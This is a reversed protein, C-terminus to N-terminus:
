KRNPSLFFENRIFKILTGYYYNVYMENKENFMRIDDSFTTYIENQIITRFIKERQSLIWQVKLLKGNSCIFWSLTKFSATRTARQIEKKKKKMMSTRHWM